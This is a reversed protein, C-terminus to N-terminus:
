GCPLTTTGGAAVRQLLSSFWIALSGFVPYKIKVKPNSLKAARTFASGVPRGVRM